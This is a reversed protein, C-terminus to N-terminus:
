RQVERYPDKKFLTVRERILSWLLVGLGAAGLGAGIRLIVPTGSGLLLWQVLSWLGYGALLAVGACILIWGIGRELRNYVNHWYLDWFRDSPEPPQMSDTVEKLEQLQILEDRCASCVSLHERLRVAEEPTLEGDLHGSLLPKYEDCRMVTTGRSAQTRPPLPPIRGWSRTSSTGCGGGHM